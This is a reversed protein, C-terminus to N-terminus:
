SKSKNQVFNIAADIVETANQVGDIPVTRNMWEIVSEATENGPTQDGTEVTVVQEVVLRLRFGKHSLHHNM